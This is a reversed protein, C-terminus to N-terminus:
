NGKRVQQCLAGLRAVAKEVEDSWVLGFSLRMCQRYKDTASFIAGPTISIGNDLAVHFLEVVDFQTPLQLWLVCGGQPNTMRTGEPFHKQVLARMREKNLALRQRLVKLNKDYDGSNLFESLTWQNMLSSSCSMARKLRRAKPAYKSAILWGIRYSPAATKSFSSCTIVNGTSSYYQAPKLDHNEYALEGYVDDEILVAGHSEIVRVLQQRREDNMRSGLPNSIATSVICAKIDHQAFARELDEVCMGEQPCLPIEIVKVGLSELMEVIGFYCPSEIAVIDGPSTVCRIAIHLAEQAGNTIILEDSNVGLACDLYRNIIQKKLAGFGDSPGYNIAKHGALNMVKRMTRSLVKDTPSAAVPNAIGLPVVGPRHLGEFVQEILAQKNVEVPSKTVSTRRPQSCAKDLANLYFGSKERASIVGQRELEQYAQQVTPISVSLKQAMNRLSPLKEGASLTGHLQMDKILDIVQQYLYTARQKNVIRSM